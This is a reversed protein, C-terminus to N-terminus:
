AAEENLIETIEDDLFGMPDKFLRDVKEDQKEPSNVGFLNFKQPLVQQAKQVKAKPLSKLFLATAAEPDAIQRKNMLEIVSAKGEDTLGNDRAVSDIRSHIDRLDEADKRKSRDDDIEKRLAALSEKTSKLEANLPEAFEEALELDPIKAEPNVDKVMRKLATGHKKNGWLTELLGRANRLSALEGATVEVVDTPATM